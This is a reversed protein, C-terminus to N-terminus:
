IEFRRLELRHGLLVIERFVVVVDQVDADHVAHAGRNVVDIEVARRM